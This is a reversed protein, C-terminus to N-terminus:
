RLELRLTAPAKGPIEVLLEGAAAMGGSTGARVTFHEAPLAFQVTLPSSGFWGRTRISDEFLEGDDAQITLQLAGWDAPPVFRIELKSQACYRLPLEITLDREFDFKRLARASQLGGLLELEYQGLSRDTLVIEDSHSFDLNTSSRRDSAFLVAAAKAAELGPARRLRVTM